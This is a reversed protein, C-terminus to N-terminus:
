NVFFYCAVASWTQAIMDIWHSQVHQAAVTYYPMVSRIMSIAHM